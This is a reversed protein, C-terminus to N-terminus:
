GSGPAHCADLIAAIAGGLEVPVSEPPGDAVRAGVMIQIPKPPPGVITVGTIADPTMGAFCLGPVPVYVNVEAGPQVTEPAGYLPPAASTRAFAADTVQIPTTGDNRLLVLMGDAGPLQEYRATPGGETAQRLLIPAPPRAHELQFAGAAGIAFGVVASAAAVTGSRRRAFAMADIMSTM